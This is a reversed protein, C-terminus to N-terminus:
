YAIEAIGIKAKNIKWWDYDTNQVVADLNADSPAYTNLVAPDEKWEDYDTNQIVGDANFDGSHLISYGDGSSKQQETGLAKSASTTFDYTMLANAVIPTSSFVDLHNRHRICFYYSEGPTLSPFRLTNGNVSQIRGDTLLVGAVTEVTITTRDGVVTPTGSRAEVLVWDVMDSPITTLEESGTYYYPSSAYPQQLPMEQSLNNYMLGNSDYCGELLVFAELGSPAAVTDDLDLSNDVYSPPQDCARVESNPDGLGDGDMDAFWSPVTPSTSKIAIPSSCSSPLGVPNAQIQVESINRADVCFLAYDLGNGNTTFTDQVSGTIVYSSYPTADTLSVNFCFDYEDKCFSSGISISAPAQIYFDLEDALRITCDADSTQYSTLKLTAGGNAIDNPGPCYEQVSSFLTGGSFTGDGTTSWTGNTVGPLVISAGLAAPTMNICGTADICQPTVTGAEVYVPVGDMLYEIPISHGMFSTESYGPGPPGDPITYIQWFGLYVEDTLYTSLASFPITFDSYDSGSQTFSFSTILNSLPSPSNVYAVPMINDIYGGYCNDPYPVYNSPNFITEDFPIVVTDVACLEVQIPAENGTICAYSANCGSAQTWEVAVSNAPSNIFELKLVNGSVVSYNDTILTDGAADNITHSEQLVDDIYFNLDYPYDVSICDHEKVTNQFTVDWVPPCGQPQNSGISSIPSQDNYSVRITGYVTDTVLQNSNTDRFVYGMYLLHWPSLYSGWEEFYRLNEFIDETNFEGSATTNIHFLDYYINGGLDLPVAANLDSPFEAMYAVLQLEYNDPKIICNADISTLTNSHKCVVVESVQFDTVTYNSSDCQAFINSFHLCLM